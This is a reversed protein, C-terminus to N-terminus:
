KSTYTSYKISIFDYFFNKKLSKNNTETLNLLFNFFLCNQIYFHTPVVFCVCARVCM